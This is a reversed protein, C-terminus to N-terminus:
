PGIYESIQKLLQNGLEGQYFWESSFRMIEDNM